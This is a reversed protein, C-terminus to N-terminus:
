DTERSLTPISLPFLETMKGPARHDAQGVVDYRSPVIPLLVASGRALRDPPALGSYTHGKM